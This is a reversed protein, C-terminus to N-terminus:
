THSSSDFLAAYGEELFEVLRILVLFVYIASIVTYTVASKMLITRYKFALNCFHVLYPKLM